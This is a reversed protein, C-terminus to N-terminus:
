IEMTGVSILIDVASTTERALRLSYGWVPSARSWVEDRKRLIEEWWFKKEKKLM